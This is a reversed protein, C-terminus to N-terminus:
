TKKRCRIEEWTLFGYPVSLCNSWCSGYQLRDTCSCLIAMNEPAKWYRYLFCAVNTFFKM